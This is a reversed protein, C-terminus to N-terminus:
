RVRRRDPNWRHQDILRVPAAATAEPATADPAPRRRPGLDHHRRARSPAESRRTMRRISASTQYEIIGEPHKAYTLAGFGFLIFAVGLAWTPSSPARARSDVFGPLDPHNNAYRQRALDFLRSLFEPVLFFGLGSMVAAQVSRAGASVVLIM